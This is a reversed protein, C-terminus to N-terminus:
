SEPTLLYLHQDEVIVRFVEIAESCPSRTVEGTAINFAGQHFPCIVEEGEIDGDSLAANGHTCQDVTAYFTGGVNYVAVAEGNPLEVRRIEDEDLEDIRLLLQREPALEAAQGPNASSM